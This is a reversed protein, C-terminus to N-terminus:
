FDHDEPTCTCPSGSLLYSFACLNDLLGQEGAIAVTPKANKTATDNAIGGLNADLLASETIAYTATGTLQIHTAFGHLGAAPQVNRPDSILSGIIKIVGRSPVKGTIPNATLNNQVSESNIGDPTIYCACCETLEQSDDFVYYAAYLAGFPSSGDNIIRVTADPAGAVNNSFYTVFYVSADGVPQAVAAGSVLGVMLVVALMPLFRVGFKKM